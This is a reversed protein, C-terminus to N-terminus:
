NSGRLVGRDGFDDSTQQAVLEINTRWFAVLQGEAEIGLLLPPAGGSPKVRPGSHGM